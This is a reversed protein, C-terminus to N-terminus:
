TPPSLARLERAKAEAPRIVQASLDATLREPSAYCYPELVPVTHTWFGPRSSTSQPVGNAYLLSECPTTSVAGKM